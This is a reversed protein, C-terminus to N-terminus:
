STDLQAVLRPPEAPPAMGPPTDSPCSPCPFGTDREEHSSCTGHRGGQPCFSRPRLAASGKGRSGARGPRKRARNTGETGASSLLSSAGARMLPSRPGRARGATAMSTSQQQSFLFVPSDNGLGADQSPSRQSALGPSCSHRRGQRHGGLVPIASPLRALSHVMGPAFCAAPAETWHACLRALLSRATVTRPDRGPKLAQDRTQPHCGSHVLWGRALAQKDM